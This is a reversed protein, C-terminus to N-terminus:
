TLLFTPKFGVSKKILLISESNKNRCPVLLISAGVLSVRRFSIYIKLFSHKITRFTVCITPIWDAILDISDEVPSIWDAISDIPDEVLAIWDTISDIPHEVSSIWDAISNIPDGGSIIWDDISDFTKLRRTSKTVFDQLYAILRYYHLFSVLSNYVRFVIHGM